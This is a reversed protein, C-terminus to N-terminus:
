YVHGCWGIADDWWLYEVGAICMGAALALLKYRVMDETEDKRTILQHTYAIFGELELRAIEPKEPLVLQALEPLL